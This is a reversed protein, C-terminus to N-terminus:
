AWTRSRAALCHAAQDLVPLLQPQPFLNPAPFEVVEIHARHDRLREDLGIRGKGRVNLRRPLQEEVLERLGSRVDRGIFEDGGGLLRQRRIAFNGQGDEDKVLNLLVDVFCLVPRGGDRFERLGHLGLEAAPHKEDGGPLRRKGGARHRQLPEAVTELDGDLKGVGLHLHDGPFDQQSLFGVAVGDM